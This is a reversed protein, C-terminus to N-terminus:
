KKTKRRKLFALVIWIALGLFFSSVLLLVVIEVLLLHWPLIWFHTVKSTHQQNDAGYVLNLTATYRGLAFNNWEYKVESWFSGAPEPQLALKPDQQTSGGAEIWAAQFRRISQPLVDGGDNNANIIKTTVGAMNSIIIDGLPKLWSQGGNQFRYYFQVPLATYFHKNKLADFELVDAGEKIDGNVRMLLLVGVQDSLTVAAGGGAQPAKTSALISSFYGGPEADKPIVISFDVVQYSKPALTISGPKQVWDALDGTQTTFEPQGTEDKAEFNATAFYYTNTKNEENFLKFTASITDGPNAALELRLPSVTLAKVFSPSVIFALAAFFCAAFINTKNM